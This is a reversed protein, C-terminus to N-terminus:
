INNYLINSSNDSLIYKNKNNLFNIINDLLTLNIQYFYIKCYVNSINKKINENDYNNNYGLENFIDCMYIENNNVYDGYENLIYNENNEYKIKKINDTIYLINENNINENIYYNVDLPEIINNLIKNDLILEYGLRINNIKNDNNIYYSWLYIYQPLLFIKKNIKIISSIKRKINKINDDNYILMDYIYIKNFVNNLNEDIHNNNYKKEDIFYYKSDINNKNKINNIDTILKKDEVVDEINDFDIIDNIDIVEEDNDGNGGSLINNFIEGDLVKNNKKFQNLYLNNNIIDNYGFKVNIKDSFNLFYQNYLKDNLNKIIFTKMNNKIIDDYTYKIHYYNFFNNYWKLGYYKILTEHDNINLKTLVDFFNYNKIIDLIKIIDKDTNGLFIFIDYQVNRNINKYKYIIKYINNKNM